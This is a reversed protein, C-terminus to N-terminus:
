EGQETDSLHAVLKGLFKIVAEPHGGRWWVEENGAHFADLRPAIARLDVETIKKRGYRREKALPPFPPQHDSIDKYTHTTKISNWVNAGVRINLGAEESINLFEARDVFWPQHQHQEYHATLTLGLGGVMERLMEVREPTMAAMAEPTGSLFYGQLEPGGNPNDTLSM